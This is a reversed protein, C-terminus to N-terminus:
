RVGGPESSSPKAAGRPIRRMGSWSSSWCVVDPRWLPGNVLVVLLFALVVLGLPLNNGVLFTNYLAYDNYPTVGCIIVSGALGLTVSRWSIARPRDDTAPIPLQTMPRIM